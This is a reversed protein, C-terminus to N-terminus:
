STPPLATSLFRELIGRGVLMAEAIRKAESVAKSRTREMMLAAMGVVLTVIAASLGTSLTYDEARLWVPGGVAAWFVAIVMWVVCAAGGLVASATLPLFALAYLGQGTDPGHDWLIEVLVVALFLHGALPLSRRWLFVLYTASHIPITALVSLATDDFGQHTLLAACLLATVNALVM